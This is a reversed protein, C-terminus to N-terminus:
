WPGPREQLKFVHMHSPSLPYVEGCGDLFWKKGPDDVVVEYKSSGYILIDGTQLSMFWNHKAHEQAVVKEAQQRNIRRDRLFDFVGVFARAGCLGILLWVVVLLSMNIFDILNDVPRGRDSLLRADPPKHM